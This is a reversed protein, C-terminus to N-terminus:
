SLRLEPEVLNSLGFHLYPYQYRVSTLYANDLDKFCAVKRRTGSIAEM